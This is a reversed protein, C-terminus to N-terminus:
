SKEGIIILKQKDRLLEFILEGQASDLYRELESYHKFQKQNVRHIIDGVRLHPIYSKTAQKMDLIRFECMYGEPPYALEVTVGICNIPVPSLNKPEPIKFFCKEEKDGRLFTLCIPENKM